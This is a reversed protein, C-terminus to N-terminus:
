PAEHPPELAARAEIVWKRILEKEGSNLTQSDEMLCLRYILTQVERELREVRANAAALAMEASRLRACWQREADDTENLAEDREAELAALSAAPITVPIMNQRIDVEVSRCDVRGDGSRSMQAYSDAYVELPHRWAVAEVKEGTPSPRAAFEAVAIIRTAKRLADKKSDEVMDLLVQEDTFPIDIFSHPDIIKAITEALTDESMDESVETM